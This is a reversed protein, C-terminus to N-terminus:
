FHAKGNKKTKKTKKSKGSPNKKKIKKRIKILEEKPRRFTMRRPQPPYNSNNESNEILINNETSSM